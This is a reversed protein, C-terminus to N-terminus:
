ACVPFGDLSAADAAAAEHDSQGWASSCATTLCGDDIVPSRGMRRLEFAVNPMSM